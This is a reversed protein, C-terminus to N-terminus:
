FRRWPKPKIPIYHDPGLMIGQPKPQALKAERQAILIAHAKDRKAVYNRIFAQQQALKSERALKNRRYASIPVPAQVVERVLVMEGTFDDPELREIMEVPKPDSRSLGQPQINDQPLRSKRRM